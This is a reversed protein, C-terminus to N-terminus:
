DTGRIIVAVIIIKGSVTVATFPSLSTSVTIAPFGPSPSLTHSASSTVLIVCLHELAVTKIAFATAHNKAEARIKGYKEHQLKKRLNYEQICNLQKGAYQNLYIWWNFIKYLM